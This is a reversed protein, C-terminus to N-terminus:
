AQPIGAKSKRDAELYIVVSDRGAKVFENVNGGILDASAVLSEANRNYNEKFSAGM